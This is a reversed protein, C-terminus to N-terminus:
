NVEYKGHREREQEEIEPEGASGAASRECCMLLVDIMNAIVSWKTM